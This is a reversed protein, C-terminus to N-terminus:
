LGLMGVHPGGKGTQRPRPGLWWLVSLSLVVASIFVLQFLESDAVVALARVIPALRGGIASLTNWGGALSLVLFSVGNVVLVLSHFVRASAEAVLWIVAQRGWPFTFMLAFGLLSGALLGAYGTRLRRLWRVRRRAPVVRDLVREALAPSPAELPLADLRLFVRELRSQEAACRACGSVHERTERAADAPLLGELLDQLTGSDPCGTM